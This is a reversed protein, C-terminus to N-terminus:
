SNSICLSNLPRVDDCGEIQSVFEVLLNAPTEGLWNAASQAFRTQIEDPGATEIDSLEAEFKRGDKTEIEVKAGQKAPYAATLNPAVVLQVLDILREIEAEGIRAYNAESIGRTAIASAVGYQISMKAQLVNLFPGVHDCGPYLRAADTIHATISKIDDLSGSFKRAAYVAAQCPTQAYNCAPAQKHFVSTIVHNGDPFLVIEDPPDTRGIARFVGAEGELISPAAFAGQQALQTAVLGNRAAFGAHFYMESGGSHPWENFGGTTNAAIGLATQMQAVNLGKLLACAAASAFPGSMGTPRFLRALHPTMLATGIRGGVEYGAIGAALFMQGSVPKEAQALAAMLAPWIVVGLHSISGTHMDERVLGHAAVANGFAADGPATLANGAILAAGDTVPTAINAAQQAWDLPAAEFAGSLFDTLCLKAKAVVDTPASIGGVLHTAMRGTISTPPKM